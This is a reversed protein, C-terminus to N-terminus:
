AAFIAAQILRVCAAAIAVLLLVVPLGLLTLFGSSRNAFFRSGLVANGLWEVLLSVPLGLGALVAWGLVSHPVAPFYLYLLGCLLVAALGIWSVAERLTM